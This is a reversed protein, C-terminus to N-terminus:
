VPHKLDTLFELHKKAEDRWEAQTRLSMFTIAEDISRNYAKIILENAQDSFGSGHLAFEALTETVAVADSM